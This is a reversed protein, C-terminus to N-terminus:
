REFYWNEPNINLIPSQPLAGGLSTKIASVQQPAVPQWLVPLNRAMFDEYAYLPKAGSSTHTAQILADLHPNSYSGANFAAGTKFLQGGTPYSDNGYFWSLPGYDGIQWKCATQSPKCAQVASLVDPTPSVELTIGAKAFDSKMFQIETSVEPQGSPYLFSFRLPAGARIGAGCDSAATGPRMCTATGGAVVKWGHAALIKRAMATSFPYPDHREYPSALGTVPKIPVPGYEPTADRHFAASIYGPEDILHQMAQRIYLQSFIPGATPNHYNLFLVAIAWARWPLVRYGPLPRGVDTFPVYGYTLSGSRLSNYESSASTFPQEVLKSLHPKVPGSYRRNPVFTAQGSPDFASLQFPGDVVKWLPNTAYTSLDKSQSALFKYVSKSGATTMDYSGVKGGASTKDWAHQPLPTIQSLQNHTFWKPNFSRTLRLTITRTGALKMSAIDDPFAGPVYAFWASRNAKVLNIWFQVDRNTLPKGDSWRYPKLTITVTSDHNTYVPRDALSLTTNLVPQTGKGFWYLPRYLLFQFDSINTNNAYQPPMLPLIYNIPSAPPEAFTATGGAVAQPHGSGSSSAAGGGCAALALALATLTSAMALRHRRARRLPM